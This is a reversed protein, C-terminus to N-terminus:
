LSTTPPTLKSHCFRSCLFCVRCHDMFNSSINWQFAEFYIFTIFTVASEFMHLNLASGAWWWWPQFEDFECWCFSLWRCHVKENRQKTKILIERTAYDGSCKRDGGENEDKFHIMQSAVLVNKFRNRNFHGQFEQISIIRHEIRVELFELGCNSCCCHVQDTNLAGLGSSDLCITLPLDWVNRNESIWWRKSDDRTFWCLLFKENNLKGDLCSSQRKSLM